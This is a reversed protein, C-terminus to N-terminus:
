RWRAGPSSPPGWWGSRRRRPIGPSRPPRPGCSAAGSGSSGAGGEAVEIDAGVAALMEETHSRTPVPEHVVTDGEADLGALLVASKVQASAVPLRYEIGVLSGGTVSLPPLCREGAGTVTAGM